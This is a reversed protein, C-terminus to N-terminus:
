QPNHLTKGLLRITEAMNKGLEAGLGEADDLSAPVSVSYETDDMRAYWMLFPGKASLERIRQNWDFSKSRRYELCSPCLLNYGSVFGCQPCEKLEM